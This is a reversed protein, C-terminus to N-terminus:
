VPFVVGYRKCIDDFARRKKDSVNLHIDTNGLAFTSDGCFAPCFMISKRGDSLTISVDEDFMCAPNDRCVLGTLIGKLAEVDKADTIQVDIAKGNYHYKLYARTAFSNSVPLRYTRVGSAWIVLGLLLIVPVLWLRRKLAVVRM